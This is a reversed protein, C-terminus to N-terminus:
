RQRYIRGTPTMADTDGANGTQLFEQLESMGSYYYFLYRRERYDGEQADFIDTGPSGSLLKLCASQFDEHAIPANSIQTADHRESRGKVLLIPHQRGVALNYEFRNYGHDSM